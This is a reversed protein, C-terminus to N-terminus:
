LTIHGLSIDSRDYFTMFWLELCLLAWLRDHHNQTGARHDELIKSVYKLKLYGRGRAKESLLIDKAM